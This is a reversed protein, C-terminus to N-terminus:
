ASRTSCLSGMRLESFHQPKCKKWIELTNTSLGIGCFRMLEVAHKNQNMQIEIHSGWSMYFNTKVLNVLTYPSSVLFLFPHVHVLLCFQALLSPRSGRCEIMQLNVLSGATGNNVIPSRTEPERFPTEPERPTKKKGSHHKWNGSPETTGLTNETGPSPHKWNGSEPKSNGSHHTPRGHKRNGSHHKRNGALPSPM